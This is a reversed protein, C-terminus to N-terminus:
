WSNANKGLLLCESIGPVVPVPCSWVMFPASTWHLVNRGCVNVGLFFLGVQSLPPEYLDLQLRQVVDIFDAAHFCVVDKTIRPPEM